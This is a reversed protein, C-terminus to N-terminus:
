QPVGGGLADEFDMTDGAPPEEVTVKTGYDSYTVTSDMTGAKSKAKERKKVLLDDGNIWVDVTQTKLGQKEMTAVLEEQEKKSLNKSQMRTMDSIKVTGSYHDAQEGNVTDTGVKEVQGSAILMDVSRTPNNNQAQDKVLAGQAGSKEALKDYDIKMWPKAKAGMAKAADGTESYMADETYRVTTPKGAGPQAKASSGKATIQMEGTTSGSSWDIAGETETVIEGQPMPQKQTGRVKASQEKGTSESAKKLAALAGDAGGGANADDGKSGGGCATLGAM